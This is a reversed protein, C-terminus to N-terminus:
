LEFFREQKQTIKFNYGLTLQHFGATSYVTTNLQHTYTYALVFRSIKGGIFLGLWSSKEYISDSLSNRFSIGSWIENKEVPVFFKINTDLIIEENAEKYQLLLSPNIRIKSERPVVYIYGMSLLHNRYSINQSEKKLLNKITYFFYLEQNRYGLSIDFNYDWGDFQDLYSVEDMGTFDSTDLSSNLFSLSLGFSLQQKNFDGLDLHYAYTLGGGFQNFHGNEDNYIVLGLATQDGTNVYASLSQLQPTGPMDIWQGRLSTRIKNQVSSGAASPHILFYNDTLYDSYVPFGEQSYGTITLWLFALLYIKKM